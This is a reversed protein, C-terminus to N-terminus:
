PAKMLRFDWADMVRHKVGMTTQKRRVVKARRKMAMVIGGGFQRSMMVITPTKIQRGYAVIGSSMLAASPVPHLRRSWVLETIDQRFSVPVVVLASRPIVKEALWDQIKKGM